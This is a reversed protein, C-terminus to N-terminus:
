FTGRFGSALTKALARTWAGRLRAEAATLEIRTERSPVMSCIMQMEGDEVKGRERMTTALSEGGFCRRQGLVIAMTQQKETARREQRDWPGATTVHGETM